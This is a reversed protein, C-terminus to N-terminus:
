GFPVQPPTTPLATSGKDITAPNVSDFVQQAAFYFRQPGSSFRYGATMPIRGEWSCDNGVVAADPGLCTTSTNPVLELAVTVSGSQTLVSVTVTDASTLNTTRATLVIDQTLDGSTGLGVTGNPSVAATVFSPETPDSPCAGSTGYCLQLIDNAFAATTKGDAARLIGFAVYQKGPGFTFPDTASPTTSGVSASWNAGTSDATLFVTSTQSSGNAALTQITAYVRDGTFEVAVDSVAPGASAAVLTWTPSGAGAIVTFSEGNVTVSYGNYGPFGAASNVTIDVRDNVQHAALTGMLSTSKPGNLNGATADLLITDSSVIHGSGDLHVPNAGTVRPTSTFTPPALGTIASQDPARLSSQQSVQHRGALDVWEVYVALRKTTRLADTWAVYRKVTYTINNQTCEYYWKPVTGPTSPHCPDEETYTGNCGLRVPTELGAPPTGTPDTCLGLNNFSFRQLDEIGQTAIENGRARAKAAALSRLGSELVVAVAMFMVGLVTIAVVMEVLTFGGEPTGAADRRIRIRKPMERFIDADFPTPSLRKEPVPM